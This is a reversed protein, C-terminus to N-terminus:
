IIRAIVWGISAFVAAVPIMIAAVEGLDASITNLATTAETPLAADAGASVMLATGAVPLLMKMQKKM